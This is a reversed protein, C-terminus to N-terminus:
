CYYSRLLALDTADPKNTDLVMIGDGGHGFGLAHGVEHGILGKLQHKAYFDDWWGRWPAFIAFGGGSVDDWGGWDETGRSLTITGSALSVEGTSVSFSVCGTTWNTLADNRAQRWIRRHELTLTPALTDIVPIPMSYTTPTSSAEAGSGPGYDIAGASATSTMLSLAVMLTAGILTLRRLARRPTRIPRIADVVRHWSLYRAKSWNGLSAEVLMDVIADQADADPSSGRLWRGVTDNSVPGRATRVGRERLWITLDFQSIGLRGMEERIVPLREAWGKKELLILRVLDDVQEQTM